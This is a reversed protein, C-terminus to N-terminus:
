VLAGGGDVNLVNGTAYTNKMFYIYAAALEHAEGVRGVPLRREEREYLARRDSDTLADWRPTRALGPSVCNVRTPALEVALARALGEVASQISAQSTWGGRPRTASFGSTLVISGDNRISRMGYKVAAVAGWYRVEFRQRARRLDTSALPGLPLNEGATYILHDFPGVHEFFREISDEDAVDVVQASSHPSRSALEAAIDDVRNQQNSGVVVYAGEALACQVVALACQVVALGIGSTGGLAVIRQGGLTMTQPAAATLVASANAMPLDGTAKREVWTEAWLDDIM